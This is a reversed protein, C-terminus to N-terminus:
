SGKGALKEARKKMAEVAVQGSAVNLGHETTPNSKLFQRMVWSSEAVDYYLTLILITRSGTATSVLQWRWAGRTIDGEDDDLWAEIRDPPFLRDRRTYEVNSGPVEIEYAVVVDRGERKVVNAEAVNPIFDTYHEYDTLVKWVTAPPAEVLAMVTAQKLKDDPLSEVLALDGRALFPTLKGVDILNSISRLEISKRGTQAPASSSGEARKKVARVTVLGAAVNLGQEISPSTKLVRRIVWSSERVDTYLTYVVITQKGGARSVLEWLWAGTQIDGEDDALRIDIRRRPTHHHVLTYELNSGPVELEYALVADNGDQRVIELNALSQFIRTYHNYDTLVQWVKDPAANILGIITVQRLRGSRYSEVLSIEGTKLLPELMGLDISNVISDLKVERQRAAAPRGSLLLASLVAFLITQLRM